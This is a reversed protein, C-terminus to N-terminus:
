LNLASKWSEAWLFSDRRLAEFPFKKYAKTSNGDFELKKSGFSWIIMEIPTMSRTPLMNNFITHGFDWM